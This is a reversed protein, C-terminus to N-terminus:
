NIDLSIKADLADHYTRGDNSKLYPAAKSISSVSVRTLYIKKTNNKKEKEVFM